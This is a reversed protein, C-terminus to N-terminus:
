RENSEARMREYREHNLNRAIQEVEEESGLCPTCCLCEKVVSYELPSMEGLPVSLDDSETEPARELVMRPEVMKDFFKWMEMM